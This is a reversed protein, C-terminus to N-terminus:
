QLDLGRRGDAPLIDVPWGHIAARLIKPRQGGGHANSCPIRRHFAPCRVILWHINRWIGSITLPCVPMKRWGYFVRRGNRPASGIRGEGPDEKRVESFEKIRGSGEQGNELVEPRKIEKDQNM